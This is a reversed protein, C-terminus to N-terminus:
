DAPRVSDLRAMIADVDQLADTLQTHVRNLALRIGDTGDTSTPETGHGVILWSPSVALIGALATLRNARPSATGREWKDLTSVKVGLQNAVDRQTRGASARADAIRTGVESASDEIEESQAEGDGRLFEQLSDTPLQDSMPVDLYPDQRGYAGIRLAVFPSAGNESQHRKEIVHRRAM